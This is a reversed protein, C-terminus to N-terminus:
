NFLAGRGMKSIVIRAPKESSWRVPWLTCLVFCRLVTLSVSCSTSVGRSAGGISRCSGTTSIASTTFLDFKYQIFNNCLYNLTDVFLFKNENSCISLLIANKM